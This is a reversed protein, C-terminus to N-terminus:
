FKVIASARLADNQWEYNGDFFEGEDHIYELRGSFRDNFSYEGGVGYNFGNNLDEGFFDDAEVWTGGAAAFASFQGFDYGGLARLRSVRDLDGGGGDVDHNTYLTTEGEVGAFWPGAHLRAGALVSIDTLDGDVGGFFDTETSGQEVGLGVYFNQAYAPAAVAFAFVSAGVTLPLRRM